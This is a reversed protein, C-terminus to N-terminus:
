VSSRIAKRIALGEGYWATAVAAARSSFAPKRCTSSVAAQSADVPPFYTSRPPAIMAQYTGSPAPACVGNRIAPACVSEGFRRTFGSGSVPDYPQRCIATSTYPPVRSLVQSSRSRPRAPRILRRSPVCRSTLM